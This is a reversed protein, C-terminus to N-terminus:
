RSPSSTPQARNLRAYGVRAQESGAGWPDSAVLVLGVVADPGHGAEHGAGVEAASADATRERAGGDVEGPLAAGTRELTVRHDRLGPLLDGPTLEMDAAAADELRGPEGLDTM